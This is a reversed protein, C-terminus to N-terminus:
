ESKKSLVKNETGNILRSINGRHLYIILISMLAAFAGLPWLNELGYKWNLLVFMPVFAVAALISALSIYKTILTVVIWLGFVCLGPWTFYPFFGLLVGLSTAVGKGGKGKLWFSFVHGFIAGAAVGLWLFQENLTLGGDFGGLLLGTLFTPVFGKLADLLFCVIGFKKGMTRGVNTAGVNGSGHERLNVGKSRAIIVGFPTSAIVYAAVPLMLYLPNM